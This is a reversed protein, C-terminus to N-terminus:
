SAADYGVPVFEEIVSGYFVSLLQKLKKNCFVISINCFATDTVKCVREQVGFSCPLCLLSIWVAM